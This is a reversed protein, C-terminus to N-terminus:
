DGLMATHRTQAAAAALPTLLAMGGPRTWLVEVLDIVRFTLAARADRGCGVLQRADAVEEAWSSRPPPMDSRAGIGFVREAARAADTDGSCPWAARAGALLRDADADAADADADRAVHAAFCEVCVGLEAFISAHWDAPRPAPMCDRVVACTCARTEAESRHAIRCRVRNTLTRTCAPCVKDAQM